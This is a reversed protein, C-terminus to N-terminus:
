RIAGPRPVATQTWTRWGCCWGGVGAGPPWGPWCRPGSTAWTCGGAPAPPSAAACRGTRRQRIQCPGGRRWANAGNYWSVARSFLAPRVNGQGCIGNGRGLRGWKSKRIPQAISDDIMFLVTKDSSPSKTNRPVASYSFGKKKRYRRRKVTNTGQSPAARTRRRSSAQSSALTYAIRFSAAASRSRGYEAHSSLLLKYHNRYKVYILSIM